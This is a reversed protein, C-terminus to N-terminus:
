QELPWGGIGENKLRNTRELAEDSYGDNYRSIIQINKKLVVGARGSNSSTTDCPPSRAHFDNEDVPGDNICTSANGQAKAKAKAKATANM